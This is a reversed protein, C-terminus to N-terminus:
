SNKWAAAAASTSGPPSSPAITNNGTIFIIYVKSTSYILLLFMAIFGVRFLEKLQAKVESMLMGKDIMM